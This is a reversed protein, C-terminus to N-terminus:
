LKMYFLEQQINNYPVGKDFLYKTVDTIMGEIGCIYYIMNDSIPLKDLLDTVRKPSNTPESPQSIAFYTNNCLSQLLEKEYLDNLTKAGYLITHPKTDLTKLTSLFPAIGTGTAIYCYDNATGPYFFKFVEDIEITDGPECKSLKNSVEGNEFHRIIFKIDDKDLPSSCFSYSKGMISACGGCEYELENRELTLSFSNLSYFIKSKVKHISM